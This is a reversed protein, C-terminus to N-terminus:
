SVTIPLTCVSINAFIGDQCAAGIAANAIQAPTYGEPCQLAKTYRCLIFFNLFLYIFILLYPNQQM